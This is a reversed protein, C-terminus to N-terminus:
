KLELIKIIMSSVNLEKDIVLGSQYNYEALTNILSLKDKVKINDVNKFMYPFIEDILTSPISNIIRRASKYSKEVNKSRNIIEIVRNFDDTYTESEILNFTGGRSSTQITNIIQRINPYKRKIYGWLKKKQETSISVGEGEIIHGMKKAVEDVKSPYVEVETFRGRIPAIIGDINNTTFIFKTDEYSEEIVDKLADQSDPTLKEGERFDVVKLSFLSNKQSFPIVKGRITEIGREESANISLVSCDINNLVYRVASTKGVGTSGYLILNDITADKVYGGFLNKLNDSFLFDDIKKPRYKENWVISNIEDIM